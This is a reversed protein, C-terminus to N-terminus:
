SRGASRTPKPCCASGTATCRSPMPERLDVLWPQRNHPNPATVAYAVARKRVDTEAGPGQWIEVAAAPFEPSLSWVAVTAGGAAAVIGGGVLRVFNRRQIM